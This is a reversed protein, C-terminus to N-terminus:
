KKNVSCSHATTKQFTAGCNNCRIWQALATASTSGNNIGSKNLPNYIIHNRMGFLFSGSIITLVVYSKFMFRGQM